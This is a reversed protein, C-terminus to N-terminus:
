IILSFLLIVARYYILFPIDPFNFFFIPIGVWILIQTNEIHKKKCILIDM